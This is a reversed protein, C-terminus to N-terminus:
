CMTKRFPVEWSGIGENSGAVLQWALSGQPQAIAPLCSSSGEEGSARRCLEALSQATPSNRRHNKNQRHKLSTSDTSRHEQEASVHLFRLCHWLRLATRLSLCPGSGSLPDASSGSATVEPFTTFPSDCSARPEGRRALNTRRKGAQEPLM